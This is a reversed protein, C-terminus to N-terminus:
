SSSDHVKVCNLVTLKLENNVGMPWQVFCIVTVQIHRELETLQPSVSPWIDDSIYYCTEGLGM